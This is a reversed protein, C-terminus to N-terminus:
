SGKAEYVKKWFFEQAAVFDKNSVGSDVKLEFRDILSRAEEQPSFVFYVVENQTFTKVLKILGNLSCALLFPSYVKDNTIFEKIEEKKMKIEKRTVLNGAVM